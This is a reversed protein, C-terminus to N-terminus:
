QSIYKQLTKATEFNPDLLLAKDIYMRAADLNKLRYALFAAQIYGDRYDPKESIIKQWDALDTELLKSEGDAHRLGEAAAGLVQEKGPGNALAPALSFEQKALMQAGQALFFNGLAVHTEAQDPHQLMSWLSQSFKEQQPFLAVILSFLFFTTMVLFLLTKYALVLPSSTFIRKIHPFIKIKM